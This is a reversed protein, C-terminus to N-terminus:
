AAGPKLGLVEEDSIAATRNWFRGKAIKGALRWDLFSQAVASPSQCIEEIVRKVSGATTFNRLQFLLRNRAIVAEVEEEAYHRAITSRQRHRAISKACFMVRYGLKRARWGWEVDEWYFPEYATGDLVSRLLRKQFLSAGGGAYFGEVSDESQPILDHITALGDQLFLATWNTEERFRTEDKLLVQSAIAFVSSGRCPALVELAGPDLVVDNNLLYVWDFRAMRLGAAVAKSFGLAREHFDWRIGPYSEQLPRYADARCGNVVVIVQLPESWRAAARWVSALCEGLEELNDREPILISLGPALRSPFATRRRRYLLGMLSGSADVCRIWWALPRLERERWQARQPNSAPKAGLLALAFGLDRQDSGWGRECPRFAHRTRFQVSWVGTRADFVPFDLGFPMMEDWPNAVRGIESEGVTIVLENPDGKPGPPLTGCVHLIQFEARAALVATAQQTSWVHPENEPDHWGHILQASRGRSGIVESRMPGPRYARKWPCARCEAHEGRRYQRRFRTYAAGHWIEALSQQALNGLAVKDLVECAVVDGNALVHATEWPDQECSHIWAGAPLLGPFQRPVEGLCADSVTFAPHSIRLSLGPFVQRVEEVRSRLQERFQPRHTGDAGLEGPFHIPIEDRRIVPFISISNLGLSRAFAAVAPLESLNREMAVFALDVIPPQAAERCLELFRVLRVHLSEFTGYRYIAEYRRADVAHISVTLRGLGCQSLDRLLSEPACGLASVLEVFAGTSRALRIAPILDPYVTSEGSYNLLFARPDIVQRVLSEFLAFPMHEGSGRLTKRSCFICDFPCKSTLEVWLKRPTLAPEVAEIPVGM